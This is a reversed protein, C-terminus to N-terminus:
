CQREVLVKTRHAIQSLWCKREVVVKIRAADPTPWLDAALGCKRATHKAPLVPFDTTLHKFALVKNIDSLNVFIYNGM